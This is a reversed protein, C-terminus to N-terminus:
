SSGGDRSSDDGARGSDALRGSFEPKDWGVGAFPLLNVAEVRRLGPVKDKLAREVGAMFSLHSLLFGRQGASAVVHAVGDEVGVLEVSAGSKELYPRMEDLAQQVHKALDRGRDAAM